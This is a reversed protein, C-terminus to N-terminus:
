TYNDTLIITNSVNGRVQCRYSVNFGSAHPYATYEANNAGGIDAWAGGQISKQWQYSINETVVKGDERLKAVLRLSNISGSFITGEPAFITVGTDKDEYLAVPYM